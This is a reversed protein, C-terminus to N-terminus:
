NSGFKELYQGFLHHPGICRANENIKCSLSQTFQM